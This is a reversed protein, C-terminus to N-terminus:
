QSASCMISFFDLASKKSLKKNKTQCYNTTFTCKPCGGWEESDTDQKLESKCDCEAVLDLCTKMIKEFNDYIM